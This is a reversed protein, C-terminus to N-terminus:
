PQLLYVPLTHKSILVHSIPYNKILVPFFVANTEIFCILCAAFVRHKLTAGNMFNRCSKRFSKM